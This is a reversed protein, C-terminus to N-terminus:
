AQQIGSQRHKKRTRLKPARKDKDAEKAAKHNVVEYIIQSLDEKEMDIDDLRYSWHYPIPVENIEDFYKYIRKELEEKGSVRLGNLMQRTMKSFFGEVMNLWSGHTPTFVFEFRGPVTNLYEQTEQSTHASHNDLILRIKDGQPYKTNLM